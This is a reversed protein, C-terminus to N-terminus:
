IILYLNQGAHAWRQGLAHQCSPDVWALILGDETPVLKETLKLWLALSAQPSLTCDFFSDQYCATLARLQHLAWRRRRNDHIDYGVLVRSM